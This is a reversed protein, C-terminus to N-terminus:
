QEPIRQRLRELAILIIRRHRASKMWAPLRSFYSRNSWGTTGDHQRTRHPAEIWSRLQGLHTANYAWVVGKDCPTQLWLPLHFYDDLAFAGDPRTVQDNAWTRTLSCTGCTFRRPTFLNDPHPDLHRSVGCGGCRPCELLTEGQYRHRPTGDDQSRTRVPKNM